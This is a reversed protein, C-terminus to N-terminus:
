VSLYQVILVDFTYVFEFTPMPLFLGDYVKSTFPVILAVDTSTFPEAMVAEPPLAPNQLEFEDLINVNLLTPMPLLLGDYVSSTFPVILAVVTSIFPDAMVPPDPPLAPNQLEFEDLINV